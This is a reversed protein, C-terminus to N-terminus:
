RRLSTWRPTLTVQAMTQLSQVMRTAITQRMGRIPVVQAPQATPQVPGRSKQVDEILEARPGTGAGEQPRDRAATGPTAAPTM